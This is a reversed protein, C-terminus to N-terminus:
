NFRDLAVPWYSWGFWHLNPIGFDGVCRCVSVHGHSGGERRAEIVQM